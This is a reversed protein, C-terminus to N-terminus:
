CIRGVLEIWRGAGFEGYPRTDLKPIMRKRKTYRQSYKQMGEFPNFAAAASVARGSKGM